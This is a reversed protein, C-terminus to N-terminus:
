SFFRRLFPLSPSPSCVPDSAVLRAMRDAVDVAHKSGAWAIKMAEVDFEARIREHALHDVSAGEM